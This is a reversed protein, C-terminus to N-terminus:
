RGNNTLNNRVIRSIGPLLYLIGFLNIFLLLALPIDAATFILTPNTLAGFFAALCYLCIFITQLRGGTIYLFAARTIYAYAVLVGIGFTVSMFSVLWGGYFGFVTNFAAITLQTSTLGSSWVGSVVICLAVLFCVITSVFTGIMGLLASRMPDPNQTFGFLIAITGLGSETAMISRNLGYKLASMVSIGYAAGTVATSSFASRVILAIADPLATIHYLVIIAASIFFLGVKIPVIADSAVIIRKDGGFLIYAAFLGMGLAVFITPVSWATHMSLAISNTQVANGVTLGFLVCAIAYLPALYTGGIVDHLYLMPGGLGSETTSKKHLSYWASIYVEAFRVAMMFFGFIVIWFASGPGGAYVATAVGAISGNGISASLTNIFAQFPTM